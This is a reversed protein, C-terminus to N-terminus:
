ACLGDIAEARLAGDKSYYRYVTNCLVEEDPVCERNINIVIELLRSTNGSKLCSCPVIVVKHISSPFVYFDGETKKSVEELVEQFCINVAGFYNNKNTLVYIPMEDDTQPVPMFFGPMGFLMEAIGTFKYPYKVKTNLVATNHLQEQSVNWVNLHSLKILICADEDESCDLEYYYVMTMNLFRTYPVTNLLEKNKEYDILRCVIHERAKEYNFFDEGDFKLDLEKEHSFEIIKDALESISRNDLFLKYFPELNVAPAANKDKKHILLSKYEPQNAKAITHIETRAKDGIKRSVERSIKEAFEEYSMCEKM